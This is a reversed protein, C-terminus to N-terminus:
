ASFLESTSAKDHGLETIITKLTRTKWAAKGSKGPTGESDFDSLGTNFFQIQPSRVHDKQGMTPDFAYVRCGFKSISDDFSWENNIRCCFCVFHRTLSDPFCTLETKLLLLPLHLFHLALM